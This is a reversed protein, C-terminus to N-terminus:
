GREESGRAGANQQMGLVAAQPGGFGPRAWTQAEGLCEMGSVVEEWKFSMGETRQSAM